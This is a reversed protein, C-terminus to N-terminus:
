SNVSKKLSKVYQYPTYNTVKKFARIFTSKSNFGCLLGIAELTIHSNRPDSLQKKAEKVRYYNIFDVFSIELHHNIAQSLYKPNSDILQSLENLSFNEKKYLQEKEILEKASDIIDKYDNSDLPSSIYRAAPFFTAGSNVSIAIVIFLLNIISLFVIDIPWEIMSYKTIGYFWQYLFNSFQNFFFYLFIIISLINFLRKTRVEAFRKKFRFFNYAIIFMFSIPILVSQVFTQWISWYNFPGPRNDQYFLDLIAKKEEITFIFVKWNSFITYM